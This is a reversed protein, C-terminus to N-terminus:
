KVYFEHLYWMNVPVNNFFVLFLFSFLHRKMNYINLDILIMLCEKLKHIVSVHKGMYMAPFFKSNGGRKM